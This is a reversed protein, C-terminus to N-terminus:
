ACVYEPCRDICIGTQAIYQRRYHRDERQDYNQNYDTQSPFPNDGILRMKHGM